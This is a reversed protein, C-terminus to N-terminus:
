LEQRMRRPRLQALDVVSRLGGGQTESLARLFGVDPGDRGVAVSGGPFGARQDSVFAAPGVDDRDALDARRGLAARHLGATQAVRFGPVSADRVRRRDRGDRAVRARVQASDSLQGDCRDAAGPRRPMRQGSRSLSGARRIQSGADPADRRFLAARSEGPLVRIGMRQVGQVDGQRRRRQAAMSLYRHRDSHDDGSRYGACGHRAPAAQARVFGQSRYLGGAGQHARDQSESQPRQARAPHRAQPRPRRAVARQGDRGIRRYAAFRTGRRGQWQRHAAQNGPRVLHYKEAGRIRRQDALRERAGVAM